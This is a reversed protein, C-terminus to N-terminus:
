PSASQRERPASRTQPRTVTPLTTMASMANQLTATTTRERLQTSSGCSVLDDAEDGDTEQDGNGQLRAV